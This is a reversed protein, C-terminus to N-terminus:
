QTMLSIIFHIMITLITPLQNQTQPFCANNPTNQTSKHIHEKRPNEPIIAAITTANTPETKNADTEKADTKKADTKKADTTKTKNSDSKRETPKTDTNTADTPKADTKTVDTPKADTKTADTPKAYTMTADATKAATTTAHIPKANMETAPTPRTEPPIKREIVKEGKTKVLSDWPHANCMSDKCFCATGIGVDKLHVPYLYRAIDGLSRPHCSYFNDDNACGRM